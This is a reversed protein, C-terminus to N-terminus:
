KFMKAEESEMLKDKQTTLLQMLEEARESAITFSAIYGGVILGSEIDMNRTLPHTEVLEGPGMKTEFTFTEFLPNEKRFREFLYQARWHDKRDMNKQFYSIGNREEKGEFIKTDKSLEVTITKKSYDLTFM